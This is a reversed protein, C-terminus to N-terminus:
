SDGTVESAPPKGFHQRSEIFVHLANGRESDRTIQIVLFVFIVALADPLRCSPGCPLPVPRSGGEETGHSCWARWHVRERTVHAKNPSGM